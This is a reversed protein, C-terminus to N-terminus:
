PDLEANLKIGIVDKYILLGNDEDIIIQEAQDRSFSLSFNNGDININDYYGHGIIFASKEVDYNFRSTLLAYVEKAWDKKSKLKKRGTPTKGCFKSIASALSYKM